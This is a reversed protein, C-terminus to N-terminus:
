MCFFRPQCKCNPSYRMEPETLFYSDWYDDDCLAQENEDYAACDLKWWTHLNCCLTFSDFLEGYSNPRRNCPYEGHCDQVLLTPLLHPLM